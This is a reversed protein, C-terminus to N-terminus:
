KIVIFHDVNNLVSISLSQFSVTLATSCTGTRTLKKECYDFELCKFKRIDVVGNEGIIADKEKYMEGHQVAPNNLTKPCM